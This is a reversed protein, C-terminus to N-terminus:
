VAFGGVTLSLMRGHLATLIASLTPINRLCSADLRRLNKCASLSNIWPFNPEPAALHGAYRVVLKQLSSKGSTLALPMDAAYFADVDHEHFSVELELINSKAAEVLPGNSRLATLLDGSAVFDSWQPDRPKDSIHRYVNQVSNGDLVKLFSGDRTM